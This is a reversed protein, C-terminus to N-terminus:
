WRRTAQRSSPLMCGLYFWPQRRTKNSFTTISCYTCLAQRLCIFLLYQPPWAFSSSPNIFPHQHTSPHLCHLGLSGVLHEAPPLSFLSLTPSISPNHVPTQPNWHTCDTTTDGRLKCLSHDCLVHVWVCVWSSAGLQIYKSSFCHIEPKFLLLWSPESPFHLGNPKLAKKCWHM